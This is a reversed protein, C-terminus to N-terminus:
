AALVSRRAPQTPATPVPCRPCLMGDRAAPGLSTTASGTQRLEDDLPDTAICERCRTLDRQRNPNALLGFHRIRMLGPPLLHLLFRRLFEAVDLTMLRQTDGCARDNWRFSVRQDDLAVLRHNSIAM